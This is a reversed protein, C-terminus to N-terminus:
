DANINETPTVLDSHQIYIINTRHSTGAGTLTDNCFKDNDVIKIVPKSIGLEPPCISANELDCLAWLDGLHFIDAYSIGFGQKNFVEKLEKNRTIDHHIVSNNILIKTREKGIFSTLASLLSLVFPDDEPSTVKPMRFCSLFEILLPDVVELEELQSIKPPWSVPDKGKVKGVLTKASGKMLTEDTTGMCFIAEQVYSSGNRIDYVVKSKNKQHRVHHFRTSDGYERIQWTRLFSSKVGHASHNYIEMITMYEKLLSQLTRIEHEEFIVKQVHRFFLYKAKTQSVNLLHIRDEVSLAPHSM